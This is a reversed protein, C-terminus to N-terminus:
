YIRVIFSHAFVTLRFDGEMVVGSSSSVWTFWSFFPLSAPVPRVVDARVHLLLVSLPLNILLPCPSLSIRCQLETM